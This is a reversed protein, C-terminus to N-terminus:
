QPPKAQENTEGTAYITTQARGITGANLERRLYERTQIAWKGVKQVFFYQRTYAIGGLFFEVAAEL